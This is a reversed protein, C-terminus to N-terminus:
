IKETCNNLQCYKQYKLFDKTFKLAFLATIGLAVASSFFILCNDPSNTKIFLLILCIFINTPLRLWNVVSARYNEPVIIGRIFCISPYYFGVTFEFLFFSLLTLYTGFSSYNNQLYIGITSIGISFFAMIISICLIIERTLKLKKEMLSHCYSGLAISTMFGGFIIGYSPEIPEVIPTWIFIFVYMVTEFITQIILLSILLKKKKSFLIVKLGHFLNIKSIVIISENWSTYCILLTMISIPISLLFPATPGYGFNDSILSSILGATIANIGNYFTSKTFTLGILSKDLQENIHQGIYWSEFTSYLIASSVGGFLRGILHIKYNNSTMSLCTTTTSIFYVLCLKKRGFKDAIIGIIIGFIGSSLFGIIYFFSIDTKTYNYTMYVRYLYPGQLWDVFSALLYVILFKRQLKNYSKEHNTDTM